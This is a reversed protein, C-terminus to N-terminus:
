LLFGKPFPDNEELIFKHVGTIYAMGSVRVVVAELSGVKLTKVLEADFSTGLPSYNTYPQHLGIKKEHHLLTLKATTGTGCPSRDIHSEGYVVLSTGQMPQSPDDHPEYFETVDVTTVEPREPHFVEVQDNAARIINMGLEALIQRNALVPAIGTQKASVMAFFGGAYVIDISLTGFGAVNLRRDTELVFSPVMTM